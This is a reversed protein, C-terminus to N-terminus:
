SWGYNLLHETVIGGSIFSEKLYMNGRYKWMDHDWVIEYVKFSYGSNKLKIRDGKKYKPRRM